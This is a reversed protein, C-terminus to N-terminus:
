PRAAILGGGVAKPDRQNLDWCYVTGTNAVGCIGGSAGASIETFTIDGPVPLPTAVPNHLNDGWCYAKGAQTIGCSRYSGSSIQTFRLAGLVARPTASSTTTGDGLEGFGNHGWCYAEGTATLGCDTIWTSTLAVFKVGGGILTPVWGDVGPALVQNPGWCYADGGTTLACMHEGVVIGAFKLDGSIKEPVNGYV